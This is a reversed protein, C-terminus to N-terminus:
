IISSDFSAPPDASNNNKGLFSDSTIVITFFILSCSVEIVIEKTDFNVSSVDYCYHIDDIKINVSFSGYDVQSEQNDKDNILDDIDIRDKLECLENNLMAISREVNKQTATPIYDGILSAIAGFVAFAAGLWRGLKKNQLGNKVYYMPGGAMTGNPAVERYYVGLFGEAYKTAMGFLGAIWMYVPAGPGGISIATAVGAINGNGV